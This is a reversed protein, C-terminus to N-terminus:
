EAIQITGRVTVNVRSEGGEVPAPAAPASKMLSYNAAYPMPNAANSSINLNLLKWGKGGMSKQLLSARSRFAQVGEEILADEAKKRALDSVGYRIEALQLPTGSQPKQLNGILRSLVPFDKSSLRLEGRSRWGEQQQSKNYVPFTSYATRVSQMAGSERAQKVGAALARNVQEALRAPDHDSLEVFLTAYAVDNAVERSATTNFNVVNTRPEEAFCFTSLPLLLCVALKKM